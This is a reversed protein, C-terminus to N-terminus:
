CTVTSSTAFEEEGPRCKDFPSPVPIGDPVDNPVDEPVDEPIDKPVITPSSPLLDGIHQIYSKARMEKRFVWQLHAGIILWEEM